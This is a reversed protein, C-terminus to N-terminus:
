NGCKWDLSWFHNYLIALKSGYYGILLRVLAIACLVLWALVLQSLCGLVCRKGERVCPSREWADLLSRGLWEAFDQMVIKTSSPPLKRSYLSTHHSAM